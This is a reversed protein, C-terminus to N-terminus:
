KPFIFGNGFVARKEAHKESIKKGALDWFRGEIQLHERVSVRFPV